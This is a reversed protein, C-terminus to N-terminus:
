GVDTVVTRTYVSDDYVWGNQCTETPSSDSPRPQDSTWNNYNQKFMSCSSYGDDDSPISVNKQQTYSLNSNELEPVACWHDPVAALFVVGAVFTIIRFAM